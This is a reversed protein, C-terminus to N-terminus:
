HQLQLGYFRLASVKSFAIRIFSPAAAQSYMLSLEKTCSTAHPYVSRAPFTAKVLGPHSPIYEFWRMWASQLITM